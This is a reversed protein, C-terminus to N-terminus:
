SGTGTGEIKFNMDLIEGFGDFINLPVKNRLYGNAENMSFEYLKGETGNWTAVYLLAGNAAGLNNVSGPKYIRMCTIHEGAPFPDNIQVASNSGSYDYTYIERDTAYLLVNGRNGTSYFRANAIQPLSQMNHMSVSMNNSMAVNLNMIYLWRGINDQDKFVAYGYNNYGKEFHLIEKGINNVDFLAGTQINFSSLMTTPTTAYPVIVFRKGLNDYFVGGFRTTSPFQEPMYIFPALEVKETNLTAPNPLLAYSFTTEWASQNAISHIQGNNILFQYNSYTGGIEYSQPKRVTPVITFMNSGFTLEQEFTKGNLKYLENETGIYVHNIVTNNKRAGGVFTAKGSMKTKNVLSYVNQLRRNEQLSPVSYTTAIYDLDSEGGNTHVVLWGSIVKSNIWVTFQQQASIGSLKDKVDFVLTYSTASSNQTIVNDFEKSNGVVQSYSVSYHNNFITWKYELNEEPITQGTFKIQPQITLKEYQMVNYELPTSSIDIIIDNIERYSYNGKDVFCGTIM